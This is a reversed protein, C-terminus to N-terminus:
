LKSLANIVEYIIEPAQKLSMAGPTSSVANFKETLIITFGTWSLVGISFKSDLNETQTRCNSGGPNLFFALSGTTWTTLYKGNLSFFDRYYKRHMKASSFIMLIQEWIFNEMQSAILCFSDSSSVFLINTKMKLIHQLNRVINQQFGWWLQACQELSITM